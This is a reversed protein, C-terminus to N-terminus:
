DKENEGRDIKVSRRGVAVGLFYCAIFCAIPIIYLIM